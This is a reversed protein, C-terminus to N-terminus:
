YEWNSDIPKQEKKVFLMIAAIIWLIFVIPNLSLISAIILLIGAIKRKRNLLFLSLIGLAISIIGLSGLTIMLTQLQEIVQDASISSDSNSSLADNLQNKTKNSHISNLNIFSYISVIINIVIGLIALVKETTRKM